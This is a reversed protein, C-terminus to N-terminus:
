MERFKFQVHSSTNKDVRRTIFEIKNKIIDKVDAELIENIIDYPDKYEKGIQPYLVIYNGCKRVICDHKKGCERLYKYFSMDNLNVLEEINLKM